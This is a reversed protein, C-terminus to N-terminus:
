RVEVIFVYSSNGNEWEAEIEIIHKGNESPLTLNQKKSVLKKGRKENEWLYGSIYPNSSDSFKVDAVSNPEIITTDLNFAEPM